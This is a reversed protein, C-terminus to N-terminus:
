RVSHMFSGKLNILFKMHALYLRVLINIFNGKQSKQNMLKIQLLFSTEVEVDGRLFLVRSVNSKVKHCRLLLCQRTPWQVDVLM